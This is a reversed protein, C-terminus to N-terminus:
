PEQQLLELFREDTVEVLDCMPLDTHGFDEKYSLCYAVANTEATNGNHIADPYEESAYAWAELTTCAELAPYLDQVSDRLEDVDHAAQFAALCAESAPPPEESPAPPTDENLNTLWTLVLFAGVGVFVTRRVTKKM